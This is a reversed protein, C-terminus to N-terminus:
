TFLASFSRVGHVHDGIVRMRQLEAEDLPGLELVSLAERAQADDKPGSIAVQVHPNSLVFRYCDAASPPAMGPPMNQARLLDGWRTNTFSVIGPAPASLLPFVEREAGRHAANYRVHFVELRPDKALEVFLPRNHSSIGLHRCRGQEILAHAADLVKASPLEDHWGLLVVDAYDLQGKRLALELSQGIKRPDRVYCQVVVVLEARQRAAIERIALGMGVTRVSGWFFYNVGADFAARCAEYSIGYSAGLGIRSVRLGSRGLAVRRAFGSM